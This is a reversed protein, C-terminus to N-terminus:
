SHRSFLGIIPGILPAFPALVPDPRRLSEHDVVNITTAGSSNPLETLPMFRIPMQTSFHCHMGTSRVVVTGEGTESNLRVTLLRHENKGIIGGTYENANAGDPNSSLPLLDPIRLAGAVVPNFLFTKTEFVM